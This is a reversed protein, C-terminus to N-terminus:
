YYRGSQQHTPPKARERWEKKEISRGEGKKRDAVEGEDNRNTIASVQVKSTSADTTQDPVQKEESKKKKIFFVGRRRVQPDRIRSTTLASM